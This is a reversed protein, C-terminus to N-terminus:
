EAPRWGLLALMHGAPDPFPRLVMERDDTKQLVQAAALFGVDQAELAAEAEAFNEPEFYFITEGPGADPNDSPGIMLRTNGADFFYMGNTEFSQTLGLVDRYFEALRAPDRSSLAVQALGNLKAPTAM